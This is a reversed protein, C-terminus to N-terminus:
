KIVKLEALDVSHYCDELDSFCVEQTKRKYIFDFFKNGKKAYFNIYKSGIDSIFLDADKIIEGMNLYAITAKNKNILMEYDESKFAGSFLYEDRMIVEGNEDYLDKDIYKANAINAKQYGLIDDDKVKYVFTTPHNDFAYTYSTDIELYEGIYNSFDYTEKIQNYKKGGIIVIEDTLFYLEDTENAFFKGKLNINEIKKYEKIDKKDYKKIINDKKIILYQDTVEIIEEKCDEGIICSYKLIEGVEDTDEVEQIEYFDLSDEYYKYCGEEFCYTPSLDYFNHDETEETENNNIIVILILCILVVIGIVIIIIKKKDM